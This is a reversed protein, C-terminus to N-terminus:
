PHKKKNELVSVKRWTQINVVQMIIKNVVNQTTFNFDLAEDPEETQIVCDTTM